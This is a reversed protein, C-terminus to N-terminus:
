VAADDTIPIGGRRLIGDADLMVDAALTVTPILSENHKSRELAIAELRAQREAAREADRERKKDARTLVNNGNEVADRDVDNRNIGQPAAVAVVNYNHWRVGHALRAADYQNLQPTGIVQWSDDDVIHIEVVFMGSKNRTAQAYPRAIFDRSGKVKVMSAISAYGSDDVTVGTQIPTTASSVPRYKSASM